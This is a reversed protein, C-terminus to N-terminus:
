RQSAELYCSRFVRSSSRSYSNLLSCGGCCRPDADVMTALRDEVVSRLLNESVTEVHIQRLAHYAREEGPHNWYRNLTAFNTQADKNALFATSFEAFTLASRARDSLERLESADQTSVFQCKHDALSVKGWFNGLVGRKALDSLTWQGRESQQRKVQHFKAQGGKRVTFEFGRADLQPPELRVTDYKGDLVDLICNVTWRVEYRNGLKDAEGGPLPM